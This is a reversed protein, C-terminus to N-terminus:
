NAITVTGYFDGNVLHRASRQMLGKVPRMTNPDIFTDTQFATYPSYVYGTEDWSEGKYGLLVKNSPFLPDVIIGFRGSLTGIVAPGAALRATQKWSDSGETGLVRFTNLKDLLNLTDPSVVAFNAHRQRKKYIETSVDGFAHLLTEFHDQMKTGDPVAKSWTVNAASAKTYLDTIISRDIERRIEDGMQQTLLDEMDEGHYAKLDQAGELTYSVKLKFEEADVTASTMGLKLEPISANGKQGLHEMDLAYDALLTAGNAPAAAFEIRGTEEDVVYSTVAASNVYVTLSDPRVPYLKTNFVKNTGDGTGLSEGKIIGGSYFRNTQGGEYDLRDGAKTPARDNAYMFDMFFVKYTPMTMPQISVLQNAVLQPFIRRILPKAIRTFVAVSATSNNSELMDAEAVGVNDMLQEVVSKMYFDNLGETLKAHRAEREADERLFGPYVPKSM